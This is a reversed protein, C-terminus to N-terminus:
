RCYSIYLKKWGIWLTSGQSTILLWSKSASTHLQFSSTKLMQQSTVHNLTEPKDLKRYSHSHLMLFRSYLVQWTGIECLFVFTGEGMSDLSDKLMITFSIPTEHKFIEKLFQSIFTPLLGIENSIALFLWVFFFALIFGALKWLKTRSKNPSFCAVNMIRSHNVVLVFINIPMEFDETSKFISPAVEPFSRTPENVWLQSLYTLRWLSEMKDQVIHHHERFIQM